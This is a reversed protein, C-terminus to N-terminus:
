IRFSRTTSPAGCVLLPSTNARTPSTTEGALGETRSTSEQERAAGRAGSGSGRESEALAARRFQRSRTQQRFRKWLPPSMVKLQPPDGHTQLPFRLRAMRSKKDEQFRGRTLPKAATRWQCASGGAGGPPASSLRRVLEAAPRAQRNDEQSGRSTYRQFEPIRVSDQNPKGTTDLRVRRTLCAAIM